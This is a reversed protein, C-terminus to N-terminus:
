DQDMDQEMSHIMGELCPILWDMDDENANQVLSELSKSIEYYEMEDDLDGGYEPSPPPTIVPPQPEEDDDSSIVIVEEEDSSVVIPNSPHEGELWARQVVRPQVARSKKEEAVQDLYWQPLPPPVLLSM